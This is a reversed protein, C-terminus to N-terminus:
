TEMKLNERRMERPNWFWQLKSKNEYELVDSCKGDFWAKHQKVIECDLREKATKINEGICTARPKHHNTRRCNV